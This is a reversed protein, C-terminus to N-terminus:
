STARCAQDGGELVRLLEQAVRRWGYNAEAMARANRGMRDRLASDGLLAAMARAFPEAADHPRVLLGNVGEQVVEANGGRDTTIIPLGAAMAEYHVRALPEQWQSGCVFLDGAPFIGPMECYPVYGTMRVAEGLRAAQRKVSRVYDDEDDGGYWRSGVLLLLADPHDALVQEFAEVIIHAGKKVSLRGVALVVPREPEIGLRARASPGAKWQPLFRELDVGSRITHLKNAYDPYLRSIERGVYDSITVVREVRDLCLRAVAPALREYQFMDNHMSLVLRAGPAAAAVAPVFAPRNFVEVLDWREAALFATANRCYDDRGEGPNVRVYRVGDSVEQDPLGPDSRCVVTVDHREGVLPAVAAIYTQIAGGRVPPVPLKETCLLAMRM